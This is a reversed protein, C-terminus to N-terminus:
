NQLVIKAEALVESYDPEEKLAPMYKAYHIINHKDVIFIARRLLRPEVMLCAYNEGFETYKHDSVVMVQDVGCRRM